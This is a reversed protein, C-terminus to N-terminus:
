VHVARLGQQRPDSHQCSGSELLCRCALVECLVAGQHEYQLALRIRFQTSFHRGLETCAM